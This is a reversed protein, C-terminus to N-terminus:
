VLAERREEARSYLVRLPCRPDDSFGRLSKDQSAREALTHFITHLDGILSEIGRVHEEFTEYCPGTKNVPQCAASHKLVVRNIQERLDDPFGPFESCVSVDNVIAADIGEVASIPPELMSKALRKAAELQEGMSDFYQTM